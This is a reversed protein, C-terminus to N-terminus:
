SGWSSWAFAVKSSDGSWPAIQNFIYLDDVTPSISSTRVCDEAVKWDVSSRKIGVRNELSDGTAVMNYCVASFGDPINSPLESTYMGSGIGIQYYEEGPVDSLIAM